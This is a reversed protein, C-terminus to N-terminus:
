KTRCSRTSSTWAPMNELRRRRRRGTTAFWSHGWARMRCTRSRPTAPPTRSPRTRVDPRFGNVGKGLFTITVGALPTEMTDDEVTRGLFSTTVPQVSVAADVSQMLPVGLVTESASVHFPVDGAPQGAAATLTLMAMQGATIKPPKLSATIGAPLGTVQLTALQTFPHNNDASDLQVAYTTSQGQLVTATGPVLSLAFTSPTLVSFITASTLTGSPTTISIPGSTAGPPVSVSIQSPSVVPSTATVGNFTVATTGTLGHGQLTVSTSPAGSMPEFGTFAPPCTCNALCQGPCASDDPPDCEENPPSVIGDGCRPTATATPVPTPTQTRSPTPTPPAPCGEFAHNAAVLIEAVTIENDFSADGPLCEAVKINGLAIRVMTLLDDTAVEERNHCDGVCDAAAGTATPPTQAFLQALLILGVARAWKTLPRGIQRFKSFREM